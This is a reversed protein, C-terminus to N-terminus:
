PPAAEQWKEVMLKSDGLVISVKVFITEGGKFPFMSAGALDKPLYFLYKGDKRRFLKGRGESVMVTVVKNSSVMLAFILYKSKDLWSFLPL